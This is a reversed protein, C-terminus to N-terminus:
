TYPNVWIDGIAYAASDNELTAGSVIIRSDNVGVSLNTYYKANVETLLTFDDAPRKNLIFGYGRGGANVLEEIGGSKQSRHHTDNVIIELMNAQPKFFSQAMLEFRLSGDEEIVSNYSEEVVQPGSEGYLYYKRTCAFTNETEDLAFNTHVVNIIRTQFYEKAGGTSPEGSAFDYWVGDQQYQLKKM